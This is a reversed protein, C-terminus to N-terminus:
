KGAKWSPMIRYKTLDTKVAKAPAIKQASSRVAEDRRALATGSFVLSAIGLTVVVAARKM